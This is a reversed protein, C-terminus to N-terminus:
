THFRVSWHILKGHDVSAGTFASSSAGYRGTTATRQRGHRRGERVKEVMRQNVGTPRFDGMEGILSRDVLSM